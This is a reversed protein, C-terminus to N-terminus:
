CMCVPGCCGVSARRAMTCVQGALLSWRVSCWMSVSLMVSLVACLVTYDAYYNCPAACVPVPICVAAVLVVARCGVYQWRSWLVTMVAAVVCGTLVYLGALLSRCCSMAHCSMACLTNTSYYLACLCLLVSLSLLAYYNTCLVACLVCCWMGAVVDHTSLLVCWRWSM